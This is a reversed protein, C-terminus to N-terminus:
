LNTSALERVLRGDRFDSLAQEIEAQTNMVFPGYQVIPENLPRGAVAILRAGDSGAMIEIRGGDRDFIALSHGPLENAGSHANGEFVYAFAILSGDWDVSFRAEPALEIDLYRLDSYRDVIPGVVGGYSGALVRAECGTQQVLPFNEPAFEQYEPRSM